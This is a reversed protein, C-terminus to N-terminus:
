VASRHLATYNLVLNCYSVNKLIQRLPPCQAGKCHVCQVLTSTLVLPMAPKKSEFMKKSICFSFPCVTIVISFSFILSLYLHALSFMRLKEIIACISGVPFLVIASSQQLKAVRDRCTLHLILEKVVHLQLPLPSYRYLRAGYMKVVLRQFPLIYVIFRISVGSMHIEVILNGASKCGALSGHKDDVSVPYRPVFEQWYM